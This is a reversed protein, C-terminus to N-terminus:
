ARRSSHSSSSVRNEICIHQDLSCACYELQIYLEGDEMWADLYSVLNPHQSLAALAYVEQLSAEHPSKSSLQSMRQQGHRSVRKIAYLNGDMTHRVKFVESFAGTGIQEIELFDTRYRSDPNTLHIRRINSRKKCQRETRNEPLYPNSNQNPKSLLFPAAPVDTMAISPLTASRRHHPGLTRNDQSTNGGERADGTGRCIRKFPSSVSQGAALDVSRGSEPM